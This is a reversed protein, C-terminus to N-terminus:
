KQKVSEYIGKAVDAMRDIRRIRGAPDIIEARAATMYTWSGRPMLSSGSMTRHTGESESEVRVQDGDVAAEARPRYNGLYKEGFQAEAIEQVYSARDTGLEEENVISARFALLYTDQSLLCRGYLFFAFHILLVMIFLVIPFVLSMEVTFYAKKLKGAASSGCGYKKGPIFM